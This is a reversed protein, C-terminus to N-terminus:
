LCEQGATYIIEALQHLASDQYGYEPFEWSNVLPLAHIGDEIKVPRFDPRADAIDHAEDVYASVIADRGGYAWVIPTTGPDRMLMDKTTHFLKTFRKLAISPYNTPNDEKRINPDNPMMEKYYVLSEEEMGGLEVLKAVPINIGLAAFVDLFINVKWDTPMDLMAGYTVISDYPERSFMMNTGQMSYGMGVLKVDSEYTDRIDEAVIKSLNLYDTEDVRNKGKSITTGGAFIPNALVIDAPADDEYILEKMEMATPYLGEACLGLGPFMAYVVKVDDEGAPGRITKGKIRYEITDSINAHEETLKAHAEYPEWGIDIKM